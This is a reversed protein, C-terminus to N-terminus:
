PQFDMLSSHNRVPLGQARLLQLLRQSEEKNLFNGLAIREAPSCLEITLPDWPHPPIAVSVSASRCPLRWTFRPYYTGKEVVIVGNAFRLVHRYRLKWCAYYLGTAVALVELGLFPIVPWLGLVAFFIGISGCWIALLAIILRNARWSASHNPEIVIWAEDDTASLTVM